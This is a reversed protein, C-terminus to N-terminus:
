LDDATSRMEDIARRADPSITTILEELIDAWYILREKLKQITLEQEDAIDSDM